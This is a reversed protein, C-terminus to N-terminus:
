KGSEASLEEQRRGLEARDEPELPPRLPQTYDLDYRGRERVEDILPQLELTVDDDTPRLPIRITPLPQWLPMAYLEVRDRKTARFVCAQYTTLHSPPTKWEPALLERTGTRTLDIEVFNVGGEVCERRKQQYQDRGDGPRNNTPSLFEIVTVVQRGSAVDIIEIFTQTMEYEPMHVVLPEAVVVGGEEEVVAVDPMIFRHSPDTPDEKEVIVRKQARARLDSNLRPQLADRAYIALAAHVDDWERELYPDTGPFPSRDAM